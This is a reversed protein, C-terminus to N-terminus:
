KGIDECILGYHERIKNIDNSILPNYVFVPKLPSVLSWTNAGGLIIATCLCPEPNPLVWMWTNSDDKGRGVACIKAQSIYVTTFFSGELPYVCACRYGIDIM